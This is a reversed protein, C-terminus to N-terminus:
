AEGKLLIELRSGARRVEYTQLPRKAPGALVTGDLGFESHGWCTCQVTKHRRNLAVPASGHTCSRSLAAFRNKEAHVIILNLKRAEDVIKGASGPRLLGRAQRLDIAIVPGEYRISAAPVDETDCCLLPVGALMLSSRILDRRNLGDVKSECECKSEM